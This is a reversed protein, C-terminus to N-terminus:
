RVACVLRRDIRLTVDSEVGLVEALKREENGTKEDFRYVNVSRGVYKELLKAPTLLDYRYNQELVELRAGRTTSRLQVTELQINASVDEFV